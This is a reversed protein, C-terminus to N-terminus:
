SRDLAQARQLATVPSLSNAASPSVAPDISQQATVGLPPQGAAPQSAMGGGGGGPGPLAAANKKAFYRAVDEKGHAKILDEVFADINLPTAAGNQAAMVVLPYIQAITQMLAMSAAQEEQRMMADPSRLGGSPVEVADLLHYRAELGVDVKHAM